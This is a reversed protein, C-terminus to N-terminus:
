SSCTIQFQSQNVFTFWSQELLPRTNLCLWVTDVSGESTQTHFNGRWIKTWTEAFCQFDIINSLCDQSFYITEIGLATVPDVDGCACKHINKVRNQRNKKEKRFAGHIVDSVFIFGNLVSGWWSKHGQSTDWWLWCILGNLFSVAFNSWVDKQNILSM